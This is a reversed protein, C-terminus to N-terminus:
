VPFALLPIRAHCVVKRTHGADLLHQWWRRRRTVMVLLDAEHRRALQQLDEKVDTSAVVQFRLRQNGIAQRVMAEYDAHIAKQRDNSRAPSFHLIHLHANRTAPWQRLLRLAQLDELHYDTTFVINKVPAPRYREPVALVPCPAQAIVQATTTGILKERLGTAGTTGMVILDAQEKKALAIVARAAAGQQVVAVESITIGHQRHMKGALRNLQQRLREEEYANEEEVTQEAVFGGQLPVYSHVLMLRAEGSQFLRGAFQLAKVSTRSFDIPVIVKM